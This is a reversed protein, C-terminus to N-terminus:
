GAMTTAAEGTSIPCPVGHRRSQGSLMLRGRDEPWNSEQFYVTGGWAHPLRFFFSAPSTKTHYFWFFHTQHHTHTHTQGCVARVTPTVIRSEHLQSTIHSPTPSKTNYLIFFVYFLGLRLYVFLIMGERTGEDEYEAPTGGRGGAKGGQWQTSCVWTHM